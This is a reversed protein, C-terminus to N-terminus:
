IFVVRYTKQKEKFNVITKYYILNHFEHLTVLISRGNLQKTTCISLFVQYEM